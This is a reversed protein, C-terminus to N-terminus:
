YDPNRESQGGGRRRKRTEKGEKKGQERETTPRKSLSSLLNFSHLLPSWVISSREGLNSQHVHKSLIVTVTNM